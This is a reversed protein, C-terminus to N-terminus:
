DNLIESGKEGAQRCDISLSQQSSRFDSTSKTQLEKNLLVSLLNEPPVELPVDSCLM